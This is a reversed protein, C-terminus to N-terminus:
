RARSGGAAGGAGEKRQQLYPPLEGFHPKFVYRVKLHLPPLATSTAPLLPATLCPFPPTTNTAPPPMPPDLPM